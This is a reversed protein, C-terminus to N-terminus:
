YLKKRKDRKEQIFNAFEQSITSLDDIPTKNIKKTFRKLIEQIDPMEKEDEDLFNKMAEIEEERKKHPKDKEEKSKSIISVKM